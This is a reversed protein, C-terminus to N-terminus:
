RTLAEQETREQADREWYRGLDEGLTTDAGLTELHDAIHPLTQLSGARYEGQSAILWPTQGRNNIANIDAGQAVLYSLLEEGALYVAGHLATQNRQNKKNIEIGLEM